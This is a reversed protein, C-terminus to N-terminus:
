SSRERKLEQTTLEVWKLLRHGTDQPVSLEGIRTALTESDVLGEVLLVRVFSRDKDRFAVLKSAALDHVELCYGINGDTKANQVKIARERWGTPLEAAELSIGHVCFGHTRHFQSLEGLVADVLDLKEPLNKLAVDCEASQRLAEPADPFQGLVAQSGFVYLEQDGTVDCAARIAHELEERTM